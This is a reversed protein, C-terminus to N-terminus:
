TSNIFICLRINGKDGPCSTWAQRTPTLCRYVPTCCLTQVHNKEDASNLLTAILWM